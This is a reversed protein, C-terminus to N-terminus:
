LPNCSLPVILPPASRDLVRFFSEEESTLVSAITAHRQSLTPYAEGMQAVLVPLLDALFPSTVGLSHGYRV